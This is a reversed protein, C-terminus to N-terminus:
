ENPTDKFRVVIFQNGLAATVKLPEGTKASIAAVVKELKTATCTYTLTAPHLLLAAYALTLM